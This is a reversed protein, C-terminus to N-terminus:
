NAYVHRARLAEVTSRPKDLDAAFAVARKDNINFWLDDPTLAAARRALEAAMERTGDALERPARAAVVTAAAVIVALLAAARPRRRVRRAWSRSTPRGNWRRVAMASSSMS